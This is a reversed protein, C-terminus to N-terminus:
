AGPAVVVPAAAPSPPPPVPVAEIAACTKAVVDSAKGVVSVPAGATDAVAVVMPNLADAKQCFLAGDTVVQAVTKNNAAAITALTVAGTTLSAQQTATTGCAALAFGFAVFSVAILTKKM